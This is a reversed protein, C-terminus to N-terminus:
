LQADFFGIPWDVLFGDNDYSAVRISSESYYSEDFLLVSVNNPEFQRKQISIGVQNIITKSHTEIIFKLPVNKDKSANIIFMLANAFQAQLKPHLHLEPQEIVITSSYSGFLRASNSGNVSFSQWMLILIPLIQSYGFGMDAINDPKSDSADTIYVSVHGESEKAEVTFGFFEKTWKNFSTKTDENKGMEYLYMAMNHGDSDLSEISLNQVRYYREAYARVPKIYSINMFDNRMTYNAIDIIDDLFYLIIYDNISDILEEKWPFSAINTIGNAEAIWKKIKERSEFVGKFRFKDSFLTSDNAPQDILCSILALIKERISNEPRNKRRADRQRYLITPLIGYDEYAHIKFCEDNSYDRGNIFISVKSYRYDFQLHITNTKNLNIELDDIFEKGKKTSISLRISFSLDFLSRIYPLNSPKDYHFEFIVKEAGRKKATSFNGFDVEQGYWLLPGRTKVNQSQKFLPFTRLFTSKGTSNAGVLLTIPKLHITSTDKLCRLNQIRIADM